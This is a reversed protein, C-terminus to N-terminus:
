GGPHLSSKKLFFIIFNNYFIFFLFVNEIARAAPLICLLLENKGRIKTCGAMKYNELFRSYYYTDLPSSFLPRFAIRSFFYILFFHSFGKVLGCFHPIIFVTLLATSVVIRAGRQHFFCTRYFNEFFNSFGEQCVWLGTTYYTHLHSLYIEM